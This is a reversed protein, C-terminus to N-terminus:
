VLAVFPSYPDKLMGGTAQYAYQGDPIPIGGARGLFRYSTLDQPFKFHISTDMTVAKRIAAAYFDPNILAFDNQTGLSPQLDNVRIPLGLLTFGAPNDRLNPIFTVLTTTGLALQFIAEMVRRSCSWYSKPGMLHRSYMQFVDRTTITGGTQRTVNLLAANNAHLWGLPESTGSGNTMREGMANLMQETIAATVTPSLEGTLDDAITEDGIEAYAGWKYVTLLRQAFAPEKTPTTSGEGIISVDAFGGALPLVTVGSAGTLTQKMYPIRLTRGSATFMRAYKLVSEQVNAVRFIEAVQELPLLFEGGSADGTTGVITRTLTHLEAIVRMQKEDPLQKRILARVMKDVSGFSRIAAKRVATIRQEITPADAEAGDDGEGDGATPSRLELGTKPDVGRRRLEDDPTFEALVDARSRLARIEAARKDVEEKSYSAAPDALEDELKLAQARLENARRNKTVLVPATAMTYGGAKVLGAGLAAVALGAQHPVAAALLALHPVLAPQIALAAIAALCALGTFMLIRRLLM